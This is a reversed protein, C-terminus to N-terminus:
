FLNLRKRMGEVHLTVSRGGAAVSVSASKKDAAGRGCGTPLLVACTLLLLACRPMM